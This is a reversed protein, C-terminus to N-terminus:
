RGGNDIETGLRESNKSEEVLAVNNEGTAGHILMSTSGGGFQPLSTRM